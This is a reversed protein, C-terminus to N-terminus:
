GSGQRHNKLNVEVWIEKDFLSLMSQPDIKWGTKRKNMFIMMNKRYENDSDSYVVGVDVNFCNQGVNKIRDVRVSKIDKIGKLLEVAYKSKDDIVKGVIDKEDQDVATFFVNINDQPTLSLLQEDVKKAAKWVMIQHAMDMKGTVHTKSDRFHICFHGNFKNGRIAGGGHPMGNMSAALRRGNDLEIIIAKRKWSWKEGYIKKM